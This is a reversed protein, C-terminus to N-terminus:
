TYQHQETLILQRAIAFSIMVRAEIPAHRDERFIAEVNEISRRMTFKSLLQWENFHRINIRLIFYAALFDPLIENSIRKMDLYEVKLVTNLHVAAYAALLKKITPTMARLNVFGNDVLYHGYEHLIFFLLVSSQRLSRWYLCNLTRWSVLITNTSKNFSPLWEKTSKGDFNQIRPFQRHKALIPTDLTALQSLLREEQAGIGKFQKSNSGNLGIGEFYDSIGPEAQRAARAFLTCEKTADFQEENVYLMWKNKVM